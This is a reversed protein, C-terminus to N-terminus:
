HLLDVLAQAQKQLAAYSKQSPLHQAFCARYDRDAKDELADSRDQNKEKEASALTADMAKKCFPVSELKEKLPEQALFVRDGRLVVVLLTDPGRDMPLDQGFVAIQAFVLEAGPPSKVLVLGHLYAAADVSLAQTWFAESRFAAPMSAPVNKEDKWWNRHDVLWRSVLPKTTVTVTTEGRSYQLGDLAGFGVDGEDLTNLTLAGQPSFGPSQWPPVALKILRGLDALSREESAPEAKVKALARDRASIYTDTPPAPDAAPAASFILFFCLLSPTIRM